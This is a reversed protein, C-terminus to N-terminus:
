SGRYTTYGYPTLLLPVHYHEEDGITFAIVVEPHFSTVGLQAFWEGTAFRLRHEGPRLPGTGLDGVRGDHDTVGAGLEVGAPSLLTVRVGAAPRGQSTDLVHTSLTAM